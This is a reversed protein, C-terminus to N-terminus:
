LSNGITLHLPYEPERPLGLEERIDLLHSSEIELWFYRGDGQIVPNYRFEVEIGSHKEWLNILPPKENRVVTIHEQWAPRVLKSTRFVSTYYLHRYLRGIEPDCDLIIWWNDSYKEGLLKPSYRITGSSTFNANM